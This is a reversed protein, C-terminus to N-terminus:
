PQQFLPTGFVWFGRCIILEGGVNIEDFCQQSPREHNSFNLTQIQVDGGAGRTSKTSRADRSENGRSIKGDEGDENDIEQVEVQVAKRKKTPNNKNTLKKQRPSGADRSLRSRFIYSWWSKDVCTYVAMSHNERMWTVMNAQSAHPSTKELAMSACDSPGIYHM